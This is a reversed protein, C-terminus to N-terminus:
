RKLPCFECKVNVSSVGDGAADVLELGTVCGDQSWETSSLIFIHSGNM